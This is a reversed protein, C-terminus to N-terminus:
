RPHRPPSATARAAEVFAETDAESPATVPPPPAAETIARQSFGATDDLTFTSPETADVLDRGAVRTDLVERHITAPSKLNTPPKPISCFTPYGGSASGCSSAPKAAAGGAWAIAAVAVITMSIHRVLAKM